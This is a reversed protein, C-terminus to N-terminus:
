AEVDYPVVKKYYEVKMFDSDRLRTIEKDCAEDASKKTQHVSVVYWSEYKECVMALFVKM